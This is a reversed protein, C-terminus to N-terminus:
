LKSREFSKHTCYITAKKMIIHEAQHPHCRCTRTSPAPSPPLTGAPGPQRVRRGLGADALLDPSNYWWGQRFNKYCILDIAYIIILLYYEILIRRKNAHLHFHLKGGVMWRVSM